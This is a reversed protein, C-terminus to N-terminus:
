SVFVFSKPQYCLLISLFTSHIEDLWDVDHADFFLISQQLFGYIPIYDYQTLFSDLIIVSINITNFNVFTRLHEHHHINNVNANSPPTKPRM